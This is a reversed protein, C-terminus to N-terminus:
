LVGYPSHEQEDVKTDAEFIAVRANRALARNARVLTNRKLFHNPEYNNHFFPDSCIGCSKGKYLCCKEVLFVDLYAGFRNLLFYFILAEFCGIFSGATVQAWSHDLLAVRSFPVPFLVICWAVCWKVRQKITIRAVPPDDEWYSESRQRPKEPAELEVAFIANRSVRRRVIGELLMWTLFGISITAHSSPMGCTFVCSGLPRAHSLLPKWVLEGMFVVFGGFTLFALQSTGRYWCLTAFAGLIVLYPIYGYLVMLLDFFDADNPLTIDGTLNRGYPCTSSENVYWSPSCLAAAPVVAAM